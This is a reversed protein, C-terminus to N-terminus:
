IYIEPFKDIPFTDNIFTICKNANIVNPHDQNIWTTAILCNKLIYRIDRYSYHELVFIDNRIVHMVYQFQDPEDINNM